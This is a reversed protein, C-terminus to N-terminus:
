NKAKKRYSAKQISRCTKCYRNVRFNTSPGKTIGDLLHGKPCHTKKQSHYKGQNRTDQANQYQTGIYLHNPNWCNRNNCKHNPQLDGILSMGLYFHASLRHVAYTQGNIKVKGYGDAISLQYLWCEDIYVTNSELYKIIEEKNFEM